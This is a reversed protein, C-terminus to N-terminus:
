FCAWPHRWKIEVTEMKKQQEATGTSDPHDKGTAIGSWTTTRMEEKSRVVQLPREVYYIFLYINKEWQKSSVRTKWWIIMKNKDNSNNNNNRLM